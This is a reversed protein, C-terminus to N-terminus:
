RLFPITKQEFAELSPFLKEVDIYEDFWTALTANVQDAAIEPILRGNNYDYESGPTLDPWKGYAKGGNVAGGMVLQHGAWGHDTGTDNAMLRRGFDSMTFTTVNDLMNIDKLDEYFDAMADSLQELLAHHANKQNHHTDFGGLGVFYIQRHHGMEAHKKILKATTHLQEGLSSRVIDDDEEGLLEALRQNQYYRSSMVDTYNDKFLNNFQRDFHDELAERREDQDLGNYKGAGGGTMVMQEYVDNRLWKQEGNLSMMPSLDNSMYVSEVMRGAWGLKDEMNLAGSQWMTQQLNHAMLFDPVPHPIDEGIIPGVLQGSNVIVTANNDRFVSELRAMAPHLGLSVAPRNNGAESQIGINVLEHKEIALTPRAREYEDYHADVPVVMNYADNGGFLFICVLAKFGDDGAVAQKSLSLGPVASLAGLATSSKLFHRRSMKM